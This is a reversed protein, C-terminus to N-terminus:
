ATVRILSIASSSPLTTCVTEVIALAGGVAAKARSLRSWYERHSIGMLDARLAKSRPALVVYHAVLIESLTPGMRRYVANVVANTGLFPFEPFHQEVRGGRGGHHLDRRAALTCRLAGIYDRALKPEVVGLIERMVIAWGECAVDVDDRRRAM